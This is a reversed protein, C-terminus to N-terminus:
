SSHPILIKKLTMFKPFDGVSELDRWDTAHVSIWDNAESVVKEVDQM